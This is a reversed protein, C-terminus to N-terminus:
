FGPSAYETTEQNKNLDILHVEFLESDAALKLSTEKDMILMATALADALACDEAKVTASIIKQRAPYGTFPSIIHSYRQGDEAFFNRYDGSTALAQNSLELIQVLDDPGADPRPASIGIKWLTSGPGPDGARVDGGIDVLFSHINMDQLAQAISDVAYGKAIGSLNLRTDSHTKMLCDQNDMIIKDLGTGALAKQIRSQDPITQDQKHPGFGWLDIVAGLTPDFAGRTLQYAKFSIHMVRALDSSPCFKNGSELRNFRSVESSPDFVSLSQNIRQLKKNIIDEAQKADGKSVGALTVRFYTGMTWGQIIHEKEPEERGCAVLCLCFILTVLTFFIRIKVPMETKKRLIVPHVCCIIM